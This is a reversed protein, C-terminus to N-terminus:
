TARTGSFEQKLVLDEKYFIIDAALNLGVIEQKPDPSASGIEYHFNTERFKPDADLEKSLRYSIQGYLVLILPQSAPGTQTSSVNQLGINMSM